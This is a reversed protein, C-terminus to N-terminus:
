RTTRPRKRADVKQARQREIVAARRREGSTRLFRAYWSAFAAALTAFVVASLFLLLLQTPISSQDITGGPTINAIGGVLFVILVYVGDLIGILAGVLYPARPALFGAIFAPFLALPPLVLGVYFVILSDIEPRISEGRTAAITRVLALVFGITLLLFPVWLLRRTRFMGPLARLDAAVDPRTFRFPSAPQAPAVAVSTRTRRASSTGIPSHDVAEDDGSAPEASALAQAARYRRRAEARQISKARAV